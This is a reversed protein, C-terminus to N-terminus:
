VTPCTGVWREVHQRLRHSGVGSVWQGLARKRNEKKESCDLDLMGVGRLELAGPGGGRSGEWQAKVQTSEAAGLM